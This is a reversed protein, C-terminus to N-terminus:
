KFEKLTKELVEAFAAEESPSGVIILGFKTAQLYDRQIRKSGRLLAEADMLSTANARRRDSIDISSKAEALLGVLRHYMRLIEDPREIECRRDRLFAYLLKVKDFPIKHLPDKQMTEYLGLRSNRDIVSWSERDKIREASSRLLFRDLTPNLRLNGAAFQRLDLNTVAFVTHLPLNELVQEGSHYSRNLLVENLEPLFVGDTNLFEDIFAIEVDDLLTNRTNRIWRGEKKLVKPNPTGFMQTDTWSPGAQQIFVKAGDMSKAVTKAITTKATGHGGTMMAHERLILAYLIQWFIYEREPFYPVYQWLSERVLFATERIEPQLLQEEPVIAPFGQMRAIPRVEFKGLWDPRLEKDRAPPQANSGMGSIWQDKLWRGALFLLAAALVFIALLSYFSGNKANKAKPALWILFGIAGSGLILTLAFFFMFTLNKPVSEWAKPFIFVGTKRILCVVVSSLCLLSLVIGAREGRHWGLWYFLGTFAALLGLIIRENRSFKKYCRKLFEKM